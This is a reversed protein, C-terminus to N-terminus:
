PTYTLQTQKAKVRLFNELYPRKEKKAILAADKLLPTLRESSLGKLAEPFQQDLLLALRRNNDFKINDPAYKQGESLYAVAAKFNGTKIALVGLNNLLVGEKQGVSEAQYFAESALKVKRQDTLKLGLLNLLRRDPYAQLNERIYVVSEDDSLTMATSQILLINMESSLIEAELLTKKALDPRGLAIFSKSLGTRVGELNPDYKILISYLEYSREYEMNALADRAEILMMLTPFIEQINHEIARISYNEADVESAYVQADHALISLLTLIFPIIRM